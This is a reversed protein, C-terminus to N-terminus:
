PGDAERLRRALWSRAFAWDDEVTTTGIDLAHATEAITLGGFFRLEVVRAKREDLAALSTLGEDLALLDIPPEDPRGELGSLTVRNRDGGRKAAKHGRAHDVLVRRIAGAAAACFHSRDKWKVATLEALRLYAEHVLATPQLTHGPRERQLYASALSRLEDYVLALLQDTDPQGAATSGSAQENCPEQRRAM